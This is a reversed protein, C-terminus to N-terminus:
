MLSYYDQLVLTDTDSLNKVLYLRGESQESIKKGLSEGEKDLNIGIVSITIRENAAVGVAALTQAVPNDGKTPLADTLLVLHKTDQKPFLEIAKRITNAIDTENGARIAALKKLLFLFDDTPPVVEKVDPGFVILGVKNHDQIAKFALAIGAKKCIKLKEGKMSGSADIAYIVSIKGKAQRTKAQLDAPM